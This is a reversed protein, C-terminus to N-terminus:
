PRLGTHREIRPYDESSGTSAGTVLEKPEVGTRLFESIQTVADPRWKEDMEQHGTSPDLINFVVTRAGPTATLPAGSIGLKARSGDPGPDPSTQYYNVAIGVNPAVTADFDVAPLLSEPSSGLSAPDLTALFDVKIGLKDLQRALDLSHAGGYSYGVLILKDGPNYVRGIFEVASEVAKAGGQDPVLVGIRLGRGEAEQIEDLDNRLATDDVRAPTGVVEAGSRVLAEGDQVEGLALLVPLTADLVRVGRVDPADASGGLHGALKVVGRAGSTAGSVAVTFDAGDGGDTGTLPASLVLRRAKPLNDALTTLLFRAAKPAYRVFRSSRM